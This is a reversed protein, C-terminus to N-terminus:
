ACRKILRDSNGIGSERNGVVAAFDLLFPTAHLAQFYDGNLSITTVKM